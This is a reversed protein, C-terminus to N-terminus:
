KQQELWEVGYGYFNAIMELDSFGGSSPVFYKGKKKGAMQLYEVLSSHETEPEDLSVLTARCFTLVIDHLKDFKELLADNQKQQHREALVRNIHANLSVGEQKAENALEAHLSKALRLRTQGSHPTYIKPVPLPVNDEQYVEVFGELAVLAEQIAEEQTDGFASLGTFEPITAIYCEDENSWVVNISYKYM